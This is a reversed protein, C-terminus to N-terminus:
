VTYIELWDSATADGPNRGCETRVAFDRASHAPENTAQRDPQRLGATFCSTGPGPHRLRRIRRPCEALVPVPWVEILAWPQDGPRPRVVIMEPPLMNM